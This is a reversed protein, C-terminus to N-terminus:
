WWGKKKCVNPRNPNLLETVQHEIFREVLADTGKELKFDMEEKYIPILSYFHVTREDDIKLESFGEPVLVPSLLLACCLKTGDSFPEAPDGNPITHGWGLWTEYEHPFRALMKLLRMPWYNAENEFAERTLPWDAPLSLMLEAHRLDECEPPVTMARDSMGSTVLTHFPREDTPEITHVDIHVLDSILEHWVMGPEGLQKLHDGIAEITQEDGIALEFGSRREAHQYMVSGGKSVEAGEPPLSPLVFVHKCIKCKVKKGALEDKLKYKYGCNVCSVQISM